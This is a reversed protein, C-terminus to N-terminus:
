TGKGHERECAERFRQEVTAMLEQFPDVFKKLGDILLADTVAKLSIGAAELRSLVSEAEDLGAQLTASAGDGPFNVIPPAWTNACVSFAFAHTVDAEVVPVTM